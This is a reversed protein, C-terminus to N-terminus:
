AVLGSGAVGSIRGAGCFAGHLSQGIGTPAVAGPNEQARCRDLSLRQATEDTVADARTNAVNRGVSALARPKAAGVGMPIGEKYSPVANGTNLHIAPVITIRIFSPLDTICHRTRNYGCGKRVVDM